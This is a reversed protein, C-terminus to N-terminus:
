EKAINRASWNEKGNDKQLYTRGQISVSRDRFRGNTGIVITDKPLATMMISDGQLM